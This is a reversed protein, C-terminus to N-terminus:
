DVVNTKKKRELVGDAKFSIVCIANNTGFRPNVELELKGGNFPPLFFVTEETVHVAVPDILDLDSSLVLFAPFCKELPLTVLINGKSWAHAGEADDM